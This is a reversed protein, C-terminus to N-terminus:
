GPSNVPIRFKGGARGTCRMKYWVDESAKTPVVRRDTKVQNNPIRLINELMNSFLMDPQTQERTM